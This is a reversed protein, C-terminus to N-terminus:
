GAMAKDKKGKLLPRILTKELIFEKKQSRSFVKVLGDLNERFELIYVPDAGTVLGQFIRDAVDSLPQIAKIKTLITDEDGLSFVWPGSNLTDPKIPSTIYNPGDFKEVERIEILQEINKELKKVLGYKIEKNVRKKLFLLATYTTADEFVQQDGFNIIQSLQKDRTLVTRIGVGYDATMFKNTVIYGFEGGQKLLKVGKEIFIVALDYNGISSEFDAKNLFDVTIPSKGKLVQIREYPPNGIVIDAGRDSKERAKEDDFYMYWLELPWYFPKTDNLIDSPIDKEKLYEIFIDDLTKRIVQKIGEIKEVIEPHTPNNLYDARLKSLQSLEDLNNATLRDIVTQDPLSVVSNGNVLNMELDPLIHNTGSLKDFRFEQPALKIAELWINVKAVELAKKDLDNGHIHRLLLKSILDRENETQILRVLSQIQFVKEEVEKSRVLSGNFKNYKSDLEYLLGKLTRYKKMIERVSKILFSGSGCAPDLVKISIFHQLLLKSREFDEKEIAEKLQTLLEDFLKSVTTDVVYQTVYKPTYYIGEDHRVGALFTEYAKGFIDEDIFRFNYQMIGAAGRFTTQWGTVGLILQLNNYLMDINEPTNKVYKLVNERFLETDYYEFFWKDVENLYDEIVHYKGKAKWKRESDDWNTKIWRADVVYFDDLTQIFIFKNLLRIVQEIKTQDDVEFEIESLKSVWIKLSEFFKKDLVERIAQYDIRRLFDWFDGIVRYDEILKFIDTQHFFSFNSATTQRNFFYWNKLDTLIIYESGEQFYKLIQEKYQEFKLEKQKLKKLRRVKGSELDPEFLSKLEILVFRGDVKLVYDVFGTGLNVEPTATGGFFKSLLSRGAFFAERLASEPKSPQALSTIYNKVEDSKLKSLVDQIKEALIEDMQFISHLDAIMNEFQKQEEASLDKYSM